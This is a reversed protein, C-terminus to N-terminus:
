KWLGKAREVLEEFIELTKPCNKKCWDSLPRYSGSFREGMLEAFLEEAKGLSRDFYGETHGLEGLTEKCKADGYVAQCTDQIAVKADILPGCKQKYETIAMKGSKYQDLLKELEDNIDEVGIFCSALAPKEQMLMQSMTVGYKESKCHLEHKQALADYIAHGTEHGITNLLAIHNWNRMCVRVRRAFIDYYSHATQGYNFPIFEDVYKSLCKVIVSDVDTKPVDRYDVCAQLQEKYKDSAKIKTRTGDPNRMFTNAYITFDVYKTANILSDSLNTRYSDDGWDSTDFQRKMAQEATEGDRIFVHTGHITIWKGKENKTTKM